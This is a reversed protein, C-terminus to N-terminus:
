VKGSAEGERSELLSTIGQKTGEQTTRLSVKRVDIHPGPISRKRQGNLM